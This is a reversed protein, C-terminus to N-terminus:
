DERLRVNRFTLEGDWIEYCDTTLAAGRRSSRLILTMRQGKMRPVAAMVYDSYGKRGAAWSVHGLTTEKGENPLIVDFALDLDTVPERLYACLVAFESPYPSDEATWRQAYWRIRQRLQASLDVDNRLTIPDDADAPLIETVGTLNVLNTASTAKWSAGPRSPRFAQTASYGIEHAGPTPALLALPLNLNRDREGVLDTLGWMSSMLPYSADDIRFRQEVIKLELPIRASGHDLYELRVVLPDGQRILERVHMQMPAIQQLFQQEEPPTLFGDAAMMALLDAWGIRFTKGIDQAHRELATATLSQLGEADLEKGMYRRVIEDLARTDGHSASFEVAGLVVASFLSLGPLAPM